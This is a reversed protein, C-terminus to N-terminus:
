NENTHKTRFGGKICYCSVWNGYKPHEVLQNIEGTYINEDIDKWWIIQGLSLGDLAEKQYIAYKSQSETRTYARRRVKAM